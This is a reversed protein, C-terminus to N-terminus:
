QRGWWSICDEIAQQLNFRCQFGIDQTLKTTDAVLYPPDDPRNALGGPNLRGSQLATEIRQGVELLSYGKGSAINIPGTCSSKLLQGFARGADAVHMFDRIQEGSSMNATQGARLQNILSPVFRKPNEEPGLLLFLRGWAISINQDILQQCQKLLHLKQQGYLTAPKCPAEESLPVGPTINTWDYEACSGAIVSRQGGADFFREILDLSAEYWAVNDSAHWFHGHVTQWAMHILLDPRHRAIVAKRFTADLLDGCLHETPLTFDPTRGCSIVEYGNQLLDSTVHRGILGSAGTLLVKM